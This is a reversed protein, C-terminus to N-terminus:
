GAMSGSSSRQTRKPRQRWLRGVGTGLAQFYTAEKLAELGWQVVGLGPLRHRNVLSSLILTAVLAVAAGEAFLASQRNGDLGGQTDPLNRPGSGFFWLFGLAVFGLGLIVCLLSRQFLMLGRLRSYAAVVQLVGFSALVVLIFYDMTTKGM